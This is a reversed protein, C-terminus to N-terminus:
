DFDSIDSKLFPKFDLWALRILFYALMSVMFLCPVLLFCVIIQCWTLVCSLFQFDM